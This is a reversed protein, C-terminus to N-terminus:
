RCARVPQTSVKGAVYREVDEGRFRVSRGIGVCPLARERALRYVTPLSVRLLAAVEQPTLLPTM